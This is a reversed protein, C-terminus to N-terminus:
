VKSKKDKHGNGRPVVVLNRHIGALPYCAVELSGTESTIEIVQNRRLGLQQMTEPHIAAWSDWAITTLSHGIEQLIPLHAGRGDQLRYDLPTLLKLGKKMSGEDLFQSRKFFNFKLPKLPVRSDKLSFTSDSIIVILQVSSFM